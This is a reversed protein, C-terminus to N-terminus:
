PAVFVTHVTAARAGRPGVASVAVTHPGPALSTSDLTLAWPEETSVQVVVGDVWLEVRVAPGGSVAPQLPVVGTVTEPVDLEVTPAAPPANVTKVPVAALAVRGGAGLARLEVVHRGNTEWATDWDLSPRVVGDVRLELQEIEGTTVPRLSVVGSLAAGLALGPLAVDLLPPPPVRGARYARVYALYRPWDWFAGPDTHHAWGGFRGRHNPDPVENHGILHRRDAPLRYRRLLRAAIRASTRYEIDSITGEIGAYGEHEIGISHANVWGNGAHWAVEDDRIMQAVSGDRGVVYHTSARARPNRFWRVTGRFSGEAVHVVVLQLSSREAHPSNSWAAPTPLVAAVLALAARV